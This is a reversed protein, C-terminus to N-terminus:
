ILLLMLRCGHVFWGKLRSVPFFATFLAHMKAMAAAPFKGKAPLAAATKLDTLITHFFVQPAHGAIGDGPLTRVASLLIPKAVL